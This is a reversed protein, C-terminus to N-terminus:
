YYNNKEEEKRFFLYIELPNQRNYIVATSRRSSELQFVTWEKGGDVTKYVARSACYIIENSNFPNLALSRVPFDKSSELVDLEEWNEGFDESKLIGKQYGIYVTGSKLPDTAVSFVSFNGLLGVTKKNEINKQLDKFEKGDRTVILTKGEVLFYVIQPNFSDFIIQTVADPAKYLNYWTEGANDSRFIAGKSNGAYLIQSNHPHIVLSTILTGSSPETYIEKWNEGDDESKYIKGIKQWVGSAFISTNNNSRNIALGYIKTPPFKLKSWNKGGDETKFLGDQLTGIYLINGNDSDIAVSLISVGSINKESLSDVKPEWNKGGDITKLVSSGNSSNERSFVCGCFLTLILFTIIIKGIQM